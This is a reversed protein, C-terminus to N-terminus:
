YAVHLSLSGADAGADVPDLQVDVVVTSPADNEDTLQMRLDGKNAARDLVYTGGNRLTAVATAESFDSFSLTLSGGLGGDPFRLPPPGPWSATILLTPDALVDVDFVYLDLVPAGSPELSGWFGGCTGPAATADGETSGSCPWFQVPECIGSMCVPRSAFGDGIAFVQYCSCFTDLALAAEIEYADVENANVAVPPDEICKGTPMDVLVCEASTSCAAHAIRVAEYDGGPCSDAGADAGADLGADTGADTTTSAAPGPERNCGLAGIVAFLFAARRM